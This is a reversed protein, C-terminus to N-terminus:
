VEDLLALSIMSPLRDKGDPCEDVTNAPMAKRDSNRAPRICEHHKLWGRGPRLRELLLSALSPRM